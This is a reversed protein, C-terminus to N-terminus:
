ILIFPAYKFPSSVSFSCIYIRWGGPYSALPEMAFYAIEEFSEIAEFLGAAMPIVFEDFNQNPMKAKLPATDILSYKKSPL